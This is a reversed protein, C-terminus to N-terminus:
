EKKWLQELDIKDFIDNEDDMLDTELMVMIPFKSLQTVPIMLDYSVQNQYETRWLTIMKKHDIIKIELESKNNITPNEWNYFQLNFIYKNENLKSDIIVGSIPDDIDFTTLCSDSLIYKPLDNFLIWDGKYKFLKVWKEPLGTHCKSPKLKLNKLTGSYTLNINENPGKLDNGFNILEKKSRSNTSYDIFYIREFQNKHNIETKIVKTSDTLTPKIYKFNQCYGTQVILIMLLQTLIQKM